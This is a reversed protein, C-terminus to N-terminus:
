GVGIVMYEVIYGNEYETTDVVINEEFSTRYITKYGFYEDSVGDPEGLGLEMMADEESCYQDRYFYGTTCGDTCGGDGCYVAEKLLCVEMSSLDVDMEIAYDEGTKKTLTFEFAPAVSTIIIAIIIFVILEAICFAAVTGYIKKYVGKGRIAKILFIVFLVAPVVAFVFILFVVSIVDSADDDYFIGYDDNYYDELATQFRANLAEDTIKHVKLTVDADLDEGYLFDAEEINNEKYDIYYYTEDMLCVIGAYASLSLSENACDVYFFEITSDYIEKETLSVIEGAMESKTATVINGDPWLFDILYKDANGNIIEKYDEFLADKLYYVTLSSGDGYYFEIRYMTTELNVEIYIDSISKKQEDTWEVYASSRLNENREDEAVVTYGFDTSLASADFRSFPEDNVYLKKFDDSFSIIPQKDYIPYNYTDYIDEEFFIESDVIPMDEAFATVAFCSFILMIAFMISLIKKM